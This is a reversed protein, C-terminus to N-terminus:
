GEERRGIIAEDGGGWVRIATCVSEGVFTERSQAAPLILCRRCNSM